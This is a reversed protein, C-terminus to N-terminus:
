DFFIAAPDTLDLAKTIRAAEDITFQRKGNIKLSMSNVSIGVDEALKEQTLGREAIKGKLLNM